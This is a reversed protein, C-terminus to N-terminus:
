VLAHGFLELVLQRSMVHSGYGLHAPRSQFVGWKEEACSLFEVRKDRHILSGLM